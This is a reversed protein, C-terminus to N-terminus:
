YELETLTCIYIGRSDHLDLDVHSIERSEWDVYNIDAMLRCGEAELRAFAKKFEEVPDM